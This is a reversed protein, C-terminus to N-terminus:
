TMMKSKFSLDSLRKGRKKIYQIESVYALKQLKKQPLPGYKKLIYEVFQIGSIM